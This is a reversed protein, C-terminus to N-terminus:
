EIKRKKTVLVATNKEINTFQDIGDFPCMAQKATPLMYDEM